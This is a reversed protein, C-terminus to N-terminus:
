HSLPVSESTEPLTESRLVILGQLFIWFEEKFLGIFDDHIKKGKFNWERDTSLM